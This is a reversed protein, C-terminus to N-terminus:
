DRCGDTLLGPAEDVAVPENALQQMFQLAAQVLEKCSTRFADSRGVAPATRREPLGDLRNEGVAFLTKADRLRDLLIAGQCETLPGLLACLRRRDPVKTCGIDDVQTSAKTAFEVGLGYLLTMSSTTSMPLVFM